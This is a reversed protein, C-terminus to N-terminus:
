DQFRENMKLKILRKNERVGDQSFGSHQNNAQWLWGTQKIEMLSVSRNCQHATATVSMWEMLKVFLILAFLFFIEGAAWNGDAWRLARAARLRWTLVTGVRLEPKTKSWISLFITSPHSQSILQQPASTTSVSFCPQVNLDEKLFPLFNYSSPATPARPWAATLTCRWPFLNTQRQSWM